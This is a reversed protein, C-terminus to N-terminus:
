HLVSRLLDKLRRKALDLVIRFPLDTRAVTHDKKKEKGDKQSVRKRKRDRSSVDIFRYSSVHAMLVHMLAGCQQSFTTCAHVGWADTANRQIRVNNAEKYLGDFLAEKRVERNRRRTCAWHIWGHSNFTQLFSEERAWLRSETRTVPIRSPNRRNKCV